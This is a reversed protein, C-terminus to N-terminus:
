ALHKDLVAKLAEGTQLGVLREAVEGDKFLILTPIGSVSFSSASQPNKDVDLKGVTARGAYEKALEEIQPALMRCPMCWDAYFDVLMLGKSNTVKEEFNGDTLIVEDGM